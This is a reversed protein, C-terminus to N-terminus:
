VHKMKSEYRLVYTHLATIVNYYYLKSHFVKVELVNGTQDLIGYMNKKERGRQSM